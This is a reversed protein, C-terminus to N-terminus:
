SKEKYNWIDEKGFEIFKKELMEDIYKEAYKTIRIKDKQYHYQRIREFPIDTGFTSPYIDGKIQRYIDLLSIGNKAPGKILEIDRLEVYYPYDLMWSEWGTFRGQVILSPDFGSSFARGIIVPTAVNDNDYSVLALFLRDTSKVGVPRTPFFTKNRTYINTSDIYSIDPNHRHQADAEFKLWGGLESEIQSKYKEVLAKEILDLTVVTNLDAGQMIRNTNTTSNTRTSAAQNVISKEKEILELTVLAKNNNSDNYSSIKSWLDDFYIICAENIDYEDIIKIGLEFNNYMGGTTYNASTVIAYFRDISYLKTHLGNLACIEAGAKVLSELGDLSSVNQIFDERYFRTIIKCPLKVKDIVTALEECTKKGMFPSIILIEKEAAAFIQHLEDGHNKTILEVPM